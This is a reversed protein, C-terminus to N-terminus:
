AYDVGDEGVGDEGGLEGDAGEGAVGVLKAGFVGGEIGIGVADGVGGGVDVVESGELESERSCVGDEAQSVVVFGPTEFSIDLLALVDGVGGDRTTHRM